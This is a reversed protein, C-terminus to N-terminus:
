EEEVVTPAEYAGQVIKMTDLLVNYNRTVFGLEYSRVERKEQGRLGRITLEGTIIVKNTAADYRALTPAFSLTVQEAIIEKVQADIGEVMSSYLKPSLHRSILGKLAPASKPTINGMLGTLYMGWAIQTEKGAHSAGIESKEELTAPVMVVTTTKMSLAISLAMITAAMVLMTIRSFRNEKLAGERTSLYDKMKM